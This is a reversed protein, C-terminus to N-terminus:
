SSDIYKPIRDFNETKMRIRTTGTSQFHKDLSNDVRKEEYQEEEDYEVPFMVPKFADSFNLLDGSRFSNKIKTIGQSKITELCLTPFCANYINIYEYM